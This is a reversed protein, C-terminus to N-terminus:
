AAPTKLGDLYAIDAALDVGFACFVPLKDEEGVFTLVLNSADAAATGSGGASTVTMGEAKGGNAGVLGYAEMKGSNLEVITFIDDTGALAEYGEKELQTDYYFGFVVQHQFLPGNTNQTNGLTTNNTYKKGTASYLRKGTKMVLTKLEKTTADVTYAAVDDVSGYYIRKSIGGKKKLANCSPAFDIAGTLPSCLSM